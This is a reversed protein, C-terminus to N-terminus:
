RNNILNFHWILDSETNEWILIQLKRWFIMVNLRKPNESTDDQIRLFEHHVNRRRKQMDPLRNSSCPTLTNDVNVASGQNHPRRQAKNKIRCGTFQLQTPNLPKLWLRATKCGIKCKCSYILLYHHYSTVSANIAPAVHSESFWKIPWLVNFLGSAAKRKHTTIIAVLIFANINLKLGQFTAITRLLFLHPLNDAQPRERQEEITNGEKADLSHSFYSSAGSSTFAGCSHSLREIRIWHANLHQYFFDSTQLKPTM